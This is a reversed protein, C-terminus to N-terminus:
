RDAERPRVMSDDIIKISELEFVTGFQTITMVDKKQKGTVEVILGNQRFKDKLGHLTYRGGDKTILAYFGGEMDKYVITGRLTESKEMGAEEQEVATKEGAEQSPAFTAPAEKTTEAADDNQEADNCASVSLACLLAPIMALRM